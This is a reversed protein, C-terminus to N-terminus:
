RNLPYIATKRMNPKKGAAAQWIRGEESPFGDDGACAAAGICGKKVGDMRGYAM